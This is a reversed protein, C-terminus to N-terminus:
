ILGEKIMEKKVQEKFAQEEAPNGIEPAVAEIMSFVDDITKVSGVKEIYEECVIASFPGIHNALAKKLYEVAEGLNASTSPAPALAHASWKEGFIQFINETDPLPLECATEFVGEAFQLRGSKIAQILPIADYGRHKTDFVLSTISGENLVFRVLHGDDSTIFVTGSEGESSLRRIEAILEPYALLSTTSKM